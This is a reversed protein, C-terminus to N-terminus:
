FYEFIVSSIHREIDGIDGDKEFLYPAPSMPTTNDRQHRADLFRCVGMMFNIVEFLCILVKYLLM